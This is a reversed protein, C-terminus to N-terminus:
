LNINVGISYSKMMPYARINSVEPDYGWDDINDHLLLLNTGTFFVRLGRVSLRGALRQPLNYSINLNKLRTFSGDRVWFSSEPYTTRYHGDVRYGPYPASPTEQSWSNAWYGYSSEEVRSQIQRGNGHMMIKHGAVGQFLIDVSLSKWSGGLSLGFNIPPEDHDALWTQDDDTIRGDPENSNPGRIDRYNLMGLRPEEGYITYGEPLADLDEQTRIIGTAVPALFDDDIIPRGLESQYPRINEPEDLTVVENTAYGFNGSIRYNIPNAGGTSNRYGLEVEFGHTDIEQYNEDPLSAGFTSPIIDERDGLIDFTHRFFVDLKLDFKNDLFRSDFGFNYSVSKEWTISRNALGGPQLGNTANGFVSGDTFNYSQLWQFAGVADNGLVGVSARLKLDNIFDSNFFSENSIRWGVSGSPFFGWRYEPAFIVSGDYRFSGQLLYRDDYNYNLLGIYSIRASQEEEGDVESSGRDSSGADFQDISFTIFDERRSMFWSENEERQEYVFSADINHDGFSRRYDVQTNLQYSFDEEQRKMLFDTTSRPRLGEEGPVPQDTVIHGNEGTTQFYQMNYPLNFQKRNEDVKYRNYTAKVGLGEIFPVEYELALTSNLGTWDTRNYGSKLDIVVGPHWEVYNGVPRGNIYPPVMSTRLKLAKYLDEQGWDGTAWSPGDRGQTYTSLDLSATLNETVFVDVNGRLNAKEFNLNDFSGTAYIYSGGLFYRVNDSGGSVNLSHNTTIPDRWLEENWDWSNERFYDLEDQTFYDDDTQAANPDNYLLAHNIASAHEYANLSEPIRTPKQLGFTGSYSFQPAQNRTGRKTTVLVVGNAARSGYISAAAGDKLISISEVETTSLADFAQKDKVIGDIVFLPDENNFTGIARIKIDSEMGPTGASQTVSVGSLRGSLLNSLNTAPVDELESANVSSVSGTLSERQQTGYGVVVMEEGQISQPSLAIDIESRGQIPVQRTEYGIFSFVLTDQLSPVDLEFAGDANTATGISTGKVLVNVGPLTEGSSADTVTGSIPTLVLTSKVSEKIVTLFLGYTKPNMPKYMLSHGALVGSLAEELNPGLRIDHKVKKEQVVGKEYVFSISFRQELKDLAERLLMDEHLYSVDDKALGVLKPESDPHDNEVSQGHALLIAGMCIIVTAVMLKLLFLYRIMM